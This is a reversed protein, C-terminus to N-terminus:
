MPVDIFAIRYGLAVVARLTEKVMERDYEKESEPLDQYHVLSPHTKDDDDRRPGRIWGEGLRKMAWTDHANMALREILDNVDSSLQVHSTDIPVPRYKSHESNDVKKV